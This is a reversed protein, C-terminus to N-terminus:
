IFHDLQGLVVFPDLSGVVIFTAFGPFSLLLSAALQARRLAFGHSSNRVVWLAVIAFPILLVLLRALGRTSRGEARFNKVATNISMESEFTRQIEFGAPKDEYCLSGAQSNAGVPQFGIGSLNKLRITALGAM